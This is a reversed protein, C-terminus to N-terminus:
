KFILLWPILLIEVNEKIFESYFSIKDYENSRSLNLRLTKIKDVDFLDYRELVSAQIENNRIIVDISHVKEYNYNIASYSLIDIKYRRNSYSIEIESGNQYKTIEFGFERLFAFKGEIFKAFNQRFM